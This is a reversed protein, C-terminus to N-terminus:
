PEKLLVDAACLTGDDQRKALEEVVELLRQGALPQMEPTSM